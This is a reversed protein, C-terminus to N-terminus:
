INSKLLLSFEKELKELNRESDAEITLRILPSTNSVRILVWGEPFDVRAGDITLVKKHMKKLIKKM